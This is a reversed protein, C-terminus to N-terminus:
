RRSDVTVEMRLVNVVLVEVYDGAWRQVTRKIRKIETRTYDEHVKVIVRDGPKLPVKSLRVDAIRPRINRAM